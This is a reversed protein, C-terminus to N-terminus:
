EKARKKKKAASTKLDAANNPEGNKAIVLNSVLIMDKLQELVESSVRSSDGYAEIKGLAFDLKKSLESNENKLAEIKKQSDIYLSKYNLDASFSDSQFHRKPALENFAKSQLEEVAQVLYDIKEELRREAPMSEPPNEEVHPEHEEEKEDEKESECLNVEEIVPEIEQNQTPQAVNKLRESRRSNAFTKKKSSLGVSETQMKLEPAVKEVFPNLNQPMDASAAEAIKAAKPKRGMKVSSLSILWVGICRDVEILNQSRERERERERQTEARETAFVTPCQKRDSNQHRVETM